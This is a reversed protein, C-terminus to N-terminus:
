TRATAGGESEWGELADVLQAGATTVTLAPTATVTLPVAAAERGPKRRAVKEDLSQRIAQVLALGALWWLVAIAPSAGSAAAWAAMYMSWLALTWITTRGRAFTM